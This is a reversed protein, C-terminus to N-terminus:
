NLIKPNILNNGKLEYEVIVTDRGYEKANKKAEKFTECEEYCTSRDPNTRYRGDMLLYTKM